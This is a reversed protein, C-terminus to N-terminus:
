GIRCTNKWPKCDLNYEIKLKKVLNTDTSLPLNCKNSHWEVEIQNIYEYTNDKFMEEMVEYEAGEVNLKLFIYDEKSFTKKIWQSFNICPTDTIIGEHRKMKEPNLTSGGKRGIVKFDVSTDTIWVAESHLHHNQIPWVRKLEPDLPFDNYLNPNCEFSHIIFQNADPYNKLFHRTSCGCHAGCDLFYKM